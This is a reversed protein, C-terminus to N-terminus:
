YAKSNCQHHCGARFHIGYLLLLIRSYGPIELYEWVLFSELRPDNRIKESMELKELTDLIRPKHFPKSRQYRIKMFINLLRPIGQIDCNFFPGVGLNNIISRTLQPWMRRPNSFCRISYRPDYDKENLILYFDLLGELSKHTAYRRTVSMKTKDNNSM